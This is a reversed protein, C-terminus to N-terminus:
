SALPKEAHGKVSDSELPQLLSRKDYVIKKGLQEHCVMGRYKGDTNIHDSLNMVFM